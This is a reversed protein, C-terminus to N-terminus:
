IGFVTQIGTRVFTVTIVLHGAHYRGRTELGFMPDLLCDKEEIAM